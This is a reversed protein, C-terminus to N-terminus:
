RLDPEALLGQRLLESVEGSRTADDDLDTAPALHWIRRFLIRMSPDTDYPAPSGGAVLEGDSEAGLHNTVDALVLPPSTRDSRHLFQRRSSAPSADLRAHPTPGLPLDWSSLPTACGATLRTRLLGRVACGLSTSMLPVANSFVSWWFCSCSFLSARSLASSALSWVPLPSAAVVATAVAPRSGGGPSSVWSRRWRVSCFGLYGSSLSRSSSRCSARSSPLTPLDTSELIPMQSEM